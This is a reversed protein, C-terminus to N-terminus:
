WGLLEAFRQCDYGLGMISVDVCAFCDVEVSCWPSVYHVSVGSLDLRRERVVMHKTGNRLVARRRDANAEFGVDRVSLLVM